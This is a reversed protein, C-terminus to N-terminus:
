LTNKRGMARKGELQVQIKQFKKAAGMKEVAMMRAFDDLFNLSRIMQQNVHCGKLLIFM